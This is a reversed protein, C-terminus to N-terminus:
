VIDVPINRIQNELYPLLKFNNINNFDSTYQYDVGEKQLVGNIWILELGNVEEEQLSDTNIKNNILDLPMSLASVTEDSRILLQGIIGNPYSSFILSIVQANLNQTIMYDINKDIKKGNLYLNCENLDVDNTVLPPNFYYIGDEKKEVQGEYYFYSGSNSLTYVVSDQDDLTYNKITFGHGGLDYNTKPLLLGNLYVHINMSDNLDQHAECYNSNIFVPVYIKKSFNFTNINIYNNGPLPKELYINKNSYTNLLTQNYLNKISTIEEFTSVDEQNLYEIAEGYLHGTVGSTVFANIKSDYVNVYGTIGTGVIANPNVIANSFMKKSMQVQVKREIEGTKFLLLNLEKAFSESTIYDINYINKINGYFGTYSNRLGTLNGYYIKKDKGFLSTNARISKSEYTYDKNPDFLNIKLTNPSFFINLINNNKLVSSFTETRFSEEGSYEIYLKHHDNVGLVVDYKNPEFIHSLVRSQNSILQPFYEFDLIILGVDNNASSTYGFLASGSTFNNAISYFKGPNYNLDVTLNNNINQFQNAGSFAQNYIFDSLNLNSNFNYAARLADESLQMNKLATKIYNASM